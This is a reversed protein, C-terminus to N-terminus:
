EPVLPLDPIDLWHLVYDSGHLKGIGSEWFAAVEWFLGREMGYRELRGIWPECSDAVQVPVIRGVEPLREETSIWGGTSARRNWAAAAAEASDYLRTQADCEPCVAQWSLHGCRSVCGCRTYGCFPCPKLKAM